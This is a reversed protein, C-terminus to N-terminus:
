ISIWYSLVYVFNLLLGSPVTIFVVKTHSCNTDQCLNQSKKEMVLVDLALGIPTM